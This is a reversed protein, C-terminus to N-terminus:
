ASLRCAAAGRRRRRARPVTERWFFMLPLAPSTRPSAVPLRARPHDAIFVWMLPLAAHAHGDARRRARHRRAFLPGLPGTQARVTCRSAPTRRRSCCRRRHRRVRAEAAPQVERRRPTRRAFSSTTAYPRSSRGRNEPQPLFNRFDRGRGRHGERAGFQGVFAYWVRRRPRHAGRVDRRLPRRARRGDAAAAFPYHIFFGTFGLVLM